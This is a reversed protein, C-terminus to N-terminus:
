ATTYTEGVLAARLKPDNIRMHQFKDGNWEDQELVGAAVCTSIACTWIVLKEILNKDFQFPGKTLRALEKSAWIMRQKEEAIFDERTQNYVEMTRNTNLVNVQKDACEKFNAGMRLADKLPMGLVKCTVTSFEFGNVPDNAKYGWYFGVLDNKQKAQAVREAYTGRQKAQGM